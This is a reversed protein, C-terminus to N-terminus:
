LPCDPSKQFLCWHHCWLHTQGWQGLLSCCAYFFFPATTRMDLLSCLTSFTRDPCSQHGPPNWAVFNESIWQGNQYVLYAERFAVEWPSPMFPSGGGLSQADITAIIARLRLKWRSRLRAKCWLRLRFRLRFRCIM